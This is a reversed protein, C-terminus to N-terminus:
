VSEHVYSETEQSQSDPLQTGTETYEDFHHYTLSLAVVGPIQHMQMISESARLGQTDEVVVVLRGDNSHAHVEVGQTDSLQDMVRAIASPVVQVLCGCINM